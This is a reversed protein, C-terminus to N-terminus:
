KGFLNWFAIFLSLLFILIAISYAAKEGRTTKVKYTM